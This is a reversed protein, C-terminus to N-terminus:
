SRPEHNGAVNTRRDPCVHPDASPEDRSNTASKPSWRFQEYTVVHLSTGISSDFYVSPNPVRDEHSIRNSNDAARVVPHVLDPNGDRLCGSHRIIGFQAQWHANAAIDPDTKTCYNQGADIDAIVTDDSCTGHDRFVNRRVGDDGPHRRSHDAAPKVILVELVMSRFQRILSNSQRSCRPPVRDTAKLWGLVPMATSFAPPARRTEM